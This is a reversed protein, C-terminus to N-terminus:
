RCACCGLPKAHKKGSSGDNNEQKGVLNRTTTSLLAISCCLRSFSPMSIVALTTDHATAKWFSNVTLLAPNNQKKAQNDWNSNCAQQHHYNQYNFRRTPDDVTVWTNRCMRPTTQIGKAVTPMMTAPARPRIITANFQNFLPPRLHHDCTITKTMKFPMTNVYRRYILIKKTICQIQYNNKSWSLYSPQRSEVLSTFSPWNVKLRM